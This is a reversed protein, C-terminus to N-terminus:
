CFLVCFLLFFVYSACNQKVLIQNGNWLWCVYTGTIVIVIVVTHELNVDRRVVMGYWASLPFCCSEHLLTSVNGTEDKLSTILGRHLITPVVVRCGLDAKSGEKRGEKRGKKRRENGRERQWCNM